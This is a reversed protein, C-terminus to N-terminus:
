KQCKPCFCTSRGVQKIKEIAHKCIYCAQGNRDYVNLEQQFYGPKNDGSVFDKLTTGGAIIAKNLVQKISHVLRDVEISKLSSAPKLPHIKALFLSEAAYINGVGVVIKSDMIATKIPAKKSSLKELLYAANFADELPEQGMNKLFNQKQLESTKCSYVMGFRRADNFVLQKGGAFGIIIHDHKQLLYDVMQVTLRGSMGLHFIISYDNDLELSLFKASRIAKLIKAGLVHQQIDQINLPYRLNERRATLTIIEESIIHKELYRKLTEVEALEPM